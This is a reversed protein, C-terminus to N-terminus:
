QGDIQVLGEKPHNVRRTRYHELVSPDHEADPPGFCFGPQTQTSRMPCLGPYSCAGRTMPFLRNLASRKAAYGGTREAERVAEVDEDLSAALEALALYGDHERMLAEYEDRRRRELEVLTNYYRHALSMQEAVLPANMRPAQAGYEYVRM